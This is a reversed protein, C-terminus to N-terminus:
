TQGRVSNENLAQWNLDKRQHQHPYKPLSVIFNSGVGVESELRITGGHAKVLEDAIFLGLGLGTVNRNTVAREFRYFITQRKDAPIGPGFDRFSIEICDDKEKGSITLPKGPAYKLTNSILNVFVQELRNVDAMGIMNPQIDLQLTCQADEFREAYQNALDLIMESYNITELQFDLKGSHIRSVDLLNDVLRSLRKLQLASTALSSSLKDYPISVKSQIQRYMMQVQLKLATIPTSLEHSAISLFRDRTQVEKELNKILQARSISQISHNVMSRLFEKEDERLNRCATYGFGMIGVSQNEILFPALILMQFKHELMFQYAEPFQVEVKERIDLVRICGSHCAALSEFQEPKATYKKGRSQLNLVM